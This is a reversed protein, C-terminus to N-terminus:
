RPSSLGSDYSSGGPIADTGAFGAMDLLVVADYDPSGPAAMCVVLRQGDTRTLELSEHALGTRGPCATNPAIIARRAENAENRGPMRALRDIATTTSDM